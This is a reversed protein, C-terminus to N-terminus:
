SCVFDDLDPVSDSISSDLGDKIFYVIPRFVSQRTQQEILPRIIDDKARTFDVKPEELSLFLDFGRM